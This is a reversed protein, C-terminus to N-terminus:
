TGKMASPLRAARAPSWLGMIKGLAFRATDLQSGRRKTIITDQL